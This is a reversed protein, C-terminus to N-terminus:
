SGEHDFEVPEIQQQSNTICLGNRSWDVVSWRVSLTEAIVSFLALLVSRRASETWAVRPLFGSLIVSSRRRLYKTVDGAATLNSAALSAQSLSRFMITVTRYPYTNYIYLRSGLLSCIAHHTYRQWLYTQRDSSMTMNDSVAMYVRITVHTCTRVAVACFNRSPRHINM